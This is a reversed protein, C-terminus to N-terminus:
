VGKNQQEREPETNDGKSQFKQPTQIVGLTLQEGKSKGTVKDKLTDGKRLFILKHLQLVPVM